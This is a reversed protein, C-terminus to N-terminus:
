INAERVKEEIWEAFILEIADIDEDQFMIFPRAPIEPTGTSAGSAHGATKRGWIKTALATVAKKSAGPGLTKSAAKEYKAFWGEGSSEVGEQGAQHVKGYWVRDPLDRVAASTKGISWIDPSSATEALAGTRVLIMGGPGKHRLVTNESLEDWTPRGGSMFNELISITMVDNIGRKLPERLDEFEAGLAVLKKAVIGLSPKFEFSTIHRDFRIGDIAGAIQAASMMGSLSSGEAM